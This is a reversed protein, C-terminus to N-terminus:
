MTQVELVVKTRALLEWLEEYEELNTILEEKLYNNVITEDFINKKKLYEIFEVTNSNINVRLFERPVSLLFLDDGKRVMRIPSNLKYM